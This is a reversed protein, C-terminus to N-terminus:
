SVKKEKTKPKPRATQVDLDSRLQPQTTNKKELDIFYACVHGKNLV